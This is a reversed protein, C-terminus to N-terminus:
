CVVERYRISFNTRVFLFLMSFTYLTANKFLMKILAKFFMMDDNIHSNIVHPFTM